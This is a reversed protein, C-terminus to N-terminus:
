YGPKRTQPVYPRGRWKKLCIKLSKDLTASSRSMRWILSQRKYVDLGADINLEVDDFMEKLVALVVQNKYARIYKPNETLNIGLIFGAGALVILIGLSFSTFLLLIGLGILSGGILTAAMIRGRQRNLQALIEEM